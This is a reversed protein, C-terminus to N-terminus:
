NNSESKKFIPSHTIIKLMKDEICEKGAEVVGQAILSRVYNITLNNTNLIPDSSWPAFVSTFFIFKSLIKIVKIHM